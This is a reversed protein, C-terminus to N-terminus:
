EGVGGPAILYVYKDCVGVNFLLVSFDCIIKSLVSAMLLFYIVERRRGCVLLRDAGAWDTFVGRSSVVGSLEADVNRM